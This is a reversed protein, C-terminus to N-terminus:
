TLTPTWSLIALHSPAIQDWQALSGSTLRCWGQIKRRFQEGKTYDDPIASTMLLLKFANCIAAPRIHRLPFLRCTFNFNMGEVRVLWM